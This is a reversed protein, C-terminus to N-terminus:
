DQAAAAKKIALYRAACDNALVPDGSHHMITAKKAMMECQGRIDEIRAFNEFARDLAELAKTLKEKRQLSGEKAQGATGMHGDALCSFLYAALDCDECELAQPLVNEVLRVNAEFEQMSILVRGIAGVAEWLAPLLRGKHALSAARLAVSFGKQPIGAEDYIRAKLIMAQLLQFIDAEQHNLDNLLQELLSLAHTYDSRRMYLQIEVISINYQLEPVGTPAAQLQALVQNGADLEGRHLHRRLKLIGLNTTWFQQYRLTRLAEQDVEDMRSIAEEWRGKRALMYASKCQIQIVDESPSQGAYCQLFLECYSRAQCGVGLRDFISSQMLMLGGYGETINKTHNLHSAKVISEFAQSVNDGNSLTLKAESLLTTSLLTWMNSEKAKAKLFSLAEKESGLVGKKRIEAMEKPHARGFQYLWSLSYNLCPLDHNERATAITEHMATVAESLCGFDAQLIALNLLAYQYLSRDRSQMTYDFYRHLSDFSSPYDGSKWADLFSVHEYAMPLQEPTVLGVPCLICHLPCDARIRGYGATSIAHSPPGPQGARCYYSRWAYSPFPFSLRQMRSVQYDLLKEMDDTSTNGHKLMGNSPIKLPLSGYVLTSLTRNPDISEELLNSDYSYPGTAPNRRNWAALTPARYTILSKWLTSGDHFQLRTFELQSRRIFAGLPSNRSFLMRRHQPHKTHDSTDSNGDIPKELYMPLEDFFVHLANLSNITWLSKLLLDWITRGPIASIHSITANQLQQISVTFGDQSIREAEKSTKSHHPLLYSILFSLIPITSSSPVVGDSYLRILALLSIKSPTLHRSM